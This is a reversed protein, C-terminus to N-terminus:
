LTGHKKSALLYVYYAMALVPTISEPSAGLARGPIVFHPANHQHIGAISGRPRFSARDPTTRGSPQLGMGALHQALYRTDSPIDASAFANPTGALRTLSIM